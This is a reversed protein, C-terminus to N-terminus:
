RIRISSPELSSRTEYAAIAASGPPRAVTVRQESLLPVLEGLLTVGVKLSGLARQNGAVLCPNTISRCRIVEYRAQEAAGIRVGHPTGFGSSNNPM